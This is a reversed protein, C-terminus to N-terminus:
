TSQTWVCMRHFLTSGDIDFADSGGITELLRLALEAKQGYVAYWALPVRNAVITEDLVHCIEGTLVGLDDVVDMMGSMVAASFIDESEPGDAASDYLTLMM